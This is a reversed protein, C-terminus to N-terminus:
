APIAPPKTGDDAWKILDTLVELAEPGHLEKVLHILCQRLSWGRMGWRTIINEAGLNELMCHFTEESYRLNSNWVLYAASGKFVRWTRGEHVIPGPEPDGINRLLKWGRSDLNPM